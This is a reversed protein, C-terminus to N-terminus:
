LCFVAYSIKVHSSNLRTSKRDQGIEEFGRQATGPGGVPDTMFFLAQKWNVLVRIPLFVAYKFDYPVLPDASVPAFNPVASHAVAGGKDREQLTFQSQVPRPFARRRELQHFRQVDFATRLRHALPRYFHGLM